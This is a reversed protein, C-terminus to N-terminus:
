CFQQEHFDRSSIPIDQDYRRSLKNTVQQESTIANGSEKVVCSKRTECIKKKKVGQSM